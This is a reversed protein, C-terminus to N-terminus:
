WLFNQKEVYKRECFNHTGLDAELDVNKVYIM